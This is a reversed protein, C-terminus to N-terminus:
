ALVNKLVLCDEASVLHTRECLYDYLLNFVVDARNIVLSVHHVLPLVHGRVFQILVLLMTLTSFVGVFLSIKYLASWGNRKKVAVDDSVLPVHIM